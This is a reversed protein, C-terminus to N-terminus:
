GTKAYEWTARSGIVLPEAGPGRSEDSEALLMIPADLCGIDNRSFLGDSVADGGVVLLCRSKRGRHGLIELVRFECDGLTAAMRGCSHRSMREGHQRGLASFALAKPAPGWSDDFYALVPHALIGAFIDIYISCISRPFRRNCFPPGLPPPPPWLRDDVVSQMLGM